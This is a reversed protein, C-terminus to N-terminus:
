WECVTGLSLYIVPKDLKLSDELWQYLNPDKKYLDDILNEKNKVLPGTVVINPPLMLPKEFGWFSNAM